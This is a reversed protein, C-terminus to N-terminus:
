AGNFRSFLELSSRYPDPKGLMKRLGSLWATGLYSALWVKLAMPDLRAEPFQGLLGRAARRALPGDIRGHALETELHVLVCRGHRLYMRHLEPLIQPALARADDVLADLKRRYWLAVQAQQEQSVRRGWSVPSIRFYLMPRAIRLTKRARLAARCYANCDLHTGVRGDWGGAALLTSRRYVTSMVMHHSRLQSLCRTPGDAPGEPTEVLPLPALPAFAPGRLEIDGLVMDLEPDADFASLASELFDPAVADDDCLLFIFEGRAESQVFEWNGARLNMEQHFVRLYPMRERYGDLVQRTDDPSADDSVIVELGDPIITQALLSDLTQRLTASRNYTPIIISILPKPM